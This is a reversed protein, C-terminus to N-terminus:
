TSLKHIVVESPSPIEPKHIISQLKHYNIWFLEVTEAKCSLQHKCVGFVISLVAAIISILAPAEIKTGSPTAITAVCLYRYM